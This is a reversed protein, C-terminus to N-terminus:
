SSLETQKNTQRDTTNVHSVTVTLQLQKGLHVCCVFLCLQLSLYLSVCAVLSLGRKGIGPRSPGITISPYISQSISLYIPRRFGDIM